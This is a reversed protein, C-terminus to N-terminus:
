HLLVVLARNERSKGCCQLAMIKSTRLNELLSIVRHVFSHVSHSLVSTDGGLTRESHHGEHDLGISKVITKHVYEQFEYDHM